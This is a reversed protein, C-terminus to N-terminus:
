GWRSSSRSRFCSSFSPRLQRRSGRRRRASPSARSSTGVGIVYKTGDGAQIFDPSISRKAQVDVVGDIGALTDLDAPTLAVVTQGPPGVFGAAIADPNYEVPRDAAVGTQGEPTKSVTMVDPAGISTVTDDIYANIGTGLGSTLTLTFAGVFIRPHHPHDADQLPLHRIASGILDVTRM